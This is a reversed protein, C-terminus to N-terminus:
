VEFAVQSLPRTLDLLLKIEAMHTPAREKILVHEPKIDRHCLRREDVCKERPSNM